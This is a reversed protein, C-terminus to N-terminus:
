MDSLTEKKNTQNKTKQSLIERCDIKFSGRYVLTSAESDQTNSQTFACLVM